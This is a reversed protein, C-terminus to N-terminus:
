KEGEILANAFARRVGYAAIHGLYTYASNGLTAEEGCAKYIEAVIEEESPLNAAIRLAAVIQKWDLETFGITKTAQMGLTIPHKEIVDALYLYRKKTPKMTTDTM